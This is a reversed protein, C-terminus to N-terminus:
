SKMGCYYLIDTNGKMFLSIDTDLQKFKLSFGLPCSIISEDCM